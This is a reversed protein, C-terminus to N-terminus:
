EPVETEIRAIVELDTYGRALQSSQDDLQAVVTIVRADTNAAVDDAVIGQRGVTLGIRVIEGHLTQNLAEAAIEVPQGLAVAGVQTQYVEIEAVMTSIDGVEM